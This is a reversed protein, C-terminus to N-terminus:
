ARKARLYQKPWPGNQKLQDAARLPWYPDRLLETALMVMDAQGTRLIQDAQAPATIMGVAATAIAAEKRVREAFSVQYGPGTPIPIKPAVGGSSCDILDVGLPGLLKALGVSDDGSWGGDVWDTSSIRVFLPLSGPWVNRVAQVVERLFRTRNEFSGGYSDTRVNSIPSLFSHLLYGHASHIELVKAGAERARKAADAFARVVRAIGSEDLPEPVQAAPSFAMPSPGFIPRWGQKDETLPAGGLWPADTSAKRGAHALQMGPVAGQEEIFRFIQALKAIHEAKWIGLDFPTIRGEATVASAETMVLAAGGVARSGLHVVHWDNAFGDVSSYECMPSVGIRNRFSVERIALPSFLHVPDPKAANQTM